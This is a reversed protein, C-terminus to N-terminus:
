AKYLVLGYHHAGADFIKKLVFGEREALEQAAAASVVADSSPGLNGFSDKWDVILLKGQPKLIRKVERMLGGKDEAQFLVNSVVVEDAIEDKVKTGGFREIDGWIVEVNKLGRDAAATKINTLFEKQVEIAYVRGSEGVRDALLVTYVGTGAGLDVVTQGEYVGLERINSEPDTFNAVDM